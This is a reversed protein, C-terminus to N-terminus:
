GSTAAPTFALVVVFADSGCNQRQDCGVRYDQGALKIGQTMKCGVSPMLDSQVEKRCM